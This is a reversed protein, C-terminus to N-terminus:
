DASFFEKQIDQATKNDPNFELLRRVLYAAMSKDGTLLSHFIMSYYLGPYDANIAYATNLHMEAEKYNGKLLALDALNVYAEFSASDLLLATDLLTKAMSYNGQYAEINSLEVYDKAKPDFAAQDTIKLRICKAAAEKDDNILHMAILNDYCSEVNDQSDRYELPKVDIARQFYHRANKFDNKVLYIVGLSYYIVYPNRFAPNDKLQKFEKEMENLQKLDATSNKFRFGKLNTNSKFLYPLLKEYFLILLRNSLISVQLAANDPFKEKAQTLFSFDTSFSEFEKQMEGLNQKKQLNSIEHYILAMTRYLYAEPIEPYWQLVSDSFVVAEDLQGSLVLLFARTIKLSTDNPLSVLQQKNIELCKALNGMGLNLVLYAAMVSDNEPHLQWEKKMGLRAKELYHKGLTPRNLRMYLNGIRALLENSKDVELSDLLVKVQEFTRADKPAKKVPEKKFIASNYNIGLNASPDFQKVVFEKIKATDQAPAVIVVLLLYLPFVLSFVATSIDKM